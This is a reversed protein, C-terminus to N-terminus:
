SKPHVLMLLDVDDAISTPSEQLRRLEFLKSLEQDVMWGMTPQGTVPDLGPGTPLGSLLAVVPAEDVSLSAILKAVDYELLAEKDPQIFPMATEGDTSNTGVLGFYLNEGANGLPVAQLGHGAAQDEAESFPEPDVVELTVHGGSRAAFEELLEIVRGAFVRFQPLERAAKESYFLKLRVPEDVRDLIRQTGASLTHVRQEPLDLRAGRLTAASLAVLAVFAVAVLPLALAPVLRRLLNM